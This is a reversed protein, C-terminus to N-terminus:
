RGVCEILAAKVARTYSARLAAHTRRLSEIRDQPCDYLRGPDPHCVAIEFDGNEVRVFSVKEPRNLFGQVLLASIMPMEAGRYVFVSHLHDLSFSRLAFSLRGLIKPDRISQSVRDSIYQVRIEEQFAETVDRGYSFTLVMVGKSALLPKYARVLARTTLNSGGCLDLNVVDFPGLAEIEVHPGCKTKGRVSFDTLDCHVVEDAGAIIAAELCRPDKDVAVIFAKPMLERIATIEGKPAQGALTLIRWAKQHVADRARLKTRAYLWQEGRVLRKQDSVRDATFNM